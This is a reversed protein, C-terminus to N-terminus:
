RPPSRLVTIYFGIAPAANCGVGQECTVQEAAGLEAQGPSIARFEATITNGAPSAM